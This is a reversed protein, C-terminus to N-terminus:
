SKSNKPNNSIADKDVKNEETRKREECYKCNGKHTLVRQDLIGSEIYECGDIEIVWYCYKSNEVNLLKKPEENSSCSILVFSILIAFIIKKMNKEKSKTYM